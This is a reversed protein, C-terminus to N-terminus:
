KYADVLMRPEVFLVSQRDNTGMIRLVDWDQHPDVSSICYIGKSGWPVTIWRQLSESYSARLAWDKPSGDQVMRSALDSPHISPDRHILCGVGRTTILRQQFFRRELDRRASQERKNIEERELEAKGVAYGMLFSETQLKAPISSLPVGEMSFKRGSLYDECPEYSLSPCSPHHAEDVHLCSLCYSISM